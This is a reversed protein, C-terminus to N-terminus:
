HIYLFIKTWSLDFRPYPLFFHKTRSFGYWPCVTNYPLVTPQVFSARCYQMQGGTQGARGNTRGRVQGKDPRKDPRCYQTQGATQGAQQVANTQVNTRGVTSRRVQGLRQGATQGAQLIAGVTYPNKRVFWIKKVRGWFNTWGVTNGKNYQTKIKTRLVSKGPRVM